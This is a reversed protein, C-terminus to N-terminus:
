LGLASIWQRIGGQITHGAALHKANAGMERRAAPDSALVRLYKLWEHDRRVLFGTIGHQVFDAYPGFDSAVVPIGLAAAELVRIPSKSRNFISPKLPAVVVDARYSRYYDWIDSQWPHHVVRPGSTYQQGWTHLRIKPDRLLRRVTSGILDWDDAHTASGQWGVVVSGDSNEPRGDLKLLAQDIMNPVVITNTNYQKIVSALPYTSVTVRDAAALCRIINDRIDPQGFFQYATTNSPDVDLLNDDIEYVLLPRGPSHLRHEVWRQAPDALCVRQGILAGRTAGQFRKPLFRSSSVQYGLTGLTDLPLRIRYYGCAEHDALWGFVPLDSISM